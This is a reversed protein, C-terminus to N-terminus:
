CIAVHVELSDYFMELSLGETFDHPLHNDLRELHRVAAQDPLLPILRLGRDSVVHEAVRCTLEPFSFLSM